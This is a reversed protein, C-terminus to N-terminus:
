RPRLFSFAGELFCTQRPEARETRITRRRRHATVVAQDELAPAKAGGSAAIIPQALLEDSRVRGFLFSTGNRKRTARNRPLVVSARSRIPADSRSNCLIEAGALVAFTSAPLLHM